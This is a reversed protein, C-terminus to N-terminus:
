AARRPSPRRAPLQIITAKEAAIQRRRDRRERMASLVFVNLARAMLLYWLVGGFIVLIVPSKEFLLYSLTYTM